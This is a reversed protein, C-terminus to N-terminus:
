KSTAKLSELEEKTLPRYEGTELDEDLELAGMAIRKLYLVQSGIAAFMKKIQHFKGEHITVQVRTYEGAKLHHETGEEDTYNLVANTGNEDPLIVLGAPAAVLDEDYQLGDAFAQVDKETIQGQVLADYVKEVHYKPTLLRHALDGDNTILLLGETDVDLRGVPFLDKRREEQMLDLVTRRHKDETASLVGAPKNMMYYEYAAYQILRGDYRVEEDGSLLTGADRVVAGNITVKCKRIATKLEKRTGVNMDALYKDLRIM